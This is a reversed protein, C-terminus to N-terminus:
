FELEEGMPWFPDTIAKQEYKKKRIYGKPDAQRQVEDMIYRRIILKTHWFEPINKQAFNLLDKKVTTEKEPDLVKNLNGVTLRIFSNIYEETPNGRKYGSNSIDIIDFLIDGLIGLSAGNVMSRGLFDLGRRDLPNFNGEEDFGLYPKYGSVMMKVNTILMGGITMLVFYKAALELRNQAQMIM